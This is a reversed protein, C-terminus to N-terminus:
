NIRYANQPQLSTWMHRYCPYKLWRTCFNHRGLRMKTHTIRGSRLSFASPPLINWVYGNIIDAWEASFNTGNYETKRSGKRCEVRYSPLMKPLTNHLGHPEYFIRSTLPHVIRRGQVVMERVKGNRYNLYIQLVLLNQHPATALLTVM